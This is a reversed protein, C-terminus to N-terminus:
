KSLANIDGLNIRIHQSNTYYTNPNTQKVVKGKETSTIVFKNTQNKLRINVGLQHRYIWISAPIAILILGFAITVVTYKKDGFFRSNIILSEKPPM